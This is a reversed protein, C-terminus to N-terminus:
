DEEDEPPEAPEKGAEDDDGQPENATDSVWDKKIFQHYIGYGLCLLTALITGLWAAFVAPQMGLIM